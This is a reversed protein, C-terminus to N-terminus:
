IVILNSLLPLGKLTIVSFLRSEALEKAASMFNLSLFWLGLIRSAITLIQSKLFRGSRSEANRSTELFSDEFILLSITLINIELNISEFTVVIFFFFVFDFIEKELLFNM